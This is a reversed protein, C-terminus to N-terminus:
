KLPLATDAHNISQKLILPLQQETYRLLHKTGEDILLSPSLLTGQPQTDLMEADPMIEQSGISKRMSGYLASEDARAHWPTLTVRLTMFRREQQQSPPNSVPDEDFDNLESANQDAKEEEHSVDELFTEAPFGFEILDDFEPGDKILFLRLASRTNQADYFQTPSARCSIVVTGDSRSSTSSRQGILSDVEPNTHGMNAEMAVDRSGERVHRVVKTLICSESQRRSFKQSMEKREIGTSLRRSEKKPKPKRQDIKEVAFSGTHYMALFAVSNEYLKNQEQQSPRAQRTACSRPKTKSQSQQGDKSAEIPKRNVNSSGIPRSMAPSPIPTQSPKDKDLPSLSSHNELKQLEKDENATEVSSLNQGDSTLSCPNPTYLAPNLITSIEDMVMQPQAKCDVPTSRRKFNQGSLGQNEIYLELLSDARPQEFSRRCINATSVSRGVRTGTLTGTPTSLPSNDQSAISPSQFSGQCGDLSSITYAPSQCPSEFVDLDQVASGLDTGHGSVMFFAQVSPSLRTRELSENLNTLRDDETITTSTPAVSNIGPMPRGRRMLLRKMAVAAGGVIPSLARTPSTPPEILPLSLSSSHASPPVKSASPNERKSPALPSRRHQPPITEPLIHTSSTTSNQLTSLVM